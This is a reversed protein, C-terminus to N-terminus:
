IRLFNKLQIELFSDLFNCIKKMSFHQNGVTLVFIFGIILRQLNYSYGRDSGVLVGCFGCIFKKSELNNLNLWENPNPM